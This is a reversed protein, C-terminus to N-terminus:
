NKKRRRIYVQVAEGMFKALKPDMKDFNVKFRPDDNYGKALGLLQDDTPSWFNEIHRHWRLVIAQVKPDKTGRPMADTMEAYIIKGEAMINEKEAKSYAKWKRNSARVTEVDYEQEAEIAYKEQEEKTFGNFLERKSM